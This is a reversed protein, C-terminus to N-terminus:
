AEQTRQELFRAIVAHRIEEPLEELAEDVLPGIMEWGAERAPSASTRAEQYAAERKARARGQRLVTISVNTACTHLWGILSSRVSGAHRALKMFCEQAADEADARNGLVRLCTAYVLNQYRSLIACFAEADQSATYRALLESDGAM